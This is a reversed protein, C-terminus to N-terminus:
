PQRSGTPRRRAPPGPQSAEGPWHRRASGAYGAAVAEPLLRKASIRGQTKEIRKAVVERVADTNGERPKRELEGTSQAREVARKVTKPTTGCIAAAGRYSGVDRYAAIM